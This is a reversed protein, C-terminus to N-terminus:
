MKQLGKLSKKLYYIGDGTPRSKIISELSSIREKTALTELAVLAAEQLGREEPVSIEDDSKTKLYIEAVKDWLIPDGSLKKIALSRLIGSLVRPHHKISLHKILTPIAAWYDNKRNVFDWVSSVNFGLTSLENLLEKEDEQCLRELAEFAKQKAAQMELFDKDKALEALFEEASQKM